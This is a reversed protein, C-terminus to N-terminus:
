LNEDAKKIWEESIFNSYKFFDIGTHKLVRNRIKILEDMYAGYKVLLSDVTDPEQLKELAEPNFVPEGALLEYPFGTIVSLKKLKNDNYYESPWKGHKENNHKQCLLTANETNLPWLYFAPLTHDLTREKEDLVDRLDKKCKFCQYNFKEFVRKSDIKEEGSLEIYLRRKQAAERHQDSIRTQNKIANYIRKCLRCEGQRGSKRSQHSDFFELPKITNCIICYKFEKAENVYEKHYIIFEGDEITKGTNTNILTYDYFKTTSDDRFIFGCEPCIFEFEDGLDDKKVFMFYKCSASLCQFGKFVVDGMGKVHAERIQNKKLVKTYPKRRTMNYYISQQINETSFITIFYL